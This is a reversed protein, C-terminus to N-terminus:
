VNNKLRYNMYKTIFNQECINFKKTIKIVHGTPSNIDIYRQCKDCCSVFLIILYRLTNVQLEYEYVNNNNDHIKMWFSENTDKNVAFNIDKYTVNIDEEKTQDNYHSIIKCNREAYFGLSTSIMIIHSQKMLEILNEHKSEQAYQKMTSLILQKKPITNLVHEVDNITYNSPIGILGFDFRYGCSDATKWQLHHCNSFLIQLRYQIFDIDINNNIKRLCMIECNIPDTSLIFQMDCPKLNPIQIRSSGRKYLLSKIWFVTGYDHTDLYISMDSLQYKLPTFYVIFYRYILWLLQQPIQKGFASLCWSKIVLIQNSNNSLCPYLCHAEPIYRKNKIVHPERIDPNNRAGRTTIRMRYKGRRFMM